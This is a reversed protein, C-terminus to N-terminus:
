GELSMHSSTMWLDSLLISNLNILTGSIITIELTQCLCISTNMEKSLVTMILNGLILALGYNFSLLGNLATTTILGKFTSCRKM